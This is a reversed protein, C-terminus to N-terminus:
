VVTTNGGAVEVSLILYIWGNRGYDPHLAVEMLGGDVKGHVPPVGEVTTLSRTSPDFLSLRGEPRDAVLAPGDPLFALSVPATLGTAVVEVRFQEEPTRYNWQSGVTEQAGGTSPAACLIAALLFRCMSGSVSAGDPSFDFANAAPCC